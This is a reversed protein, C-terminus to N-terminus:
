QSLLQSARVRVTSRPCQGKYCVSRVVRHSARCGGAGRTHLRTREFRLHRCRAPLVGVILLIRGQWAHGPSRSCAGSPGAFLKCQGTSECSLSREGVSALIPMYSGDYVAHTLEVSHRTCPREDGGIHAGGGSISHTNRGSSNLSQRESDTRTSCAAESTSAHLHLDSCLERALCNM